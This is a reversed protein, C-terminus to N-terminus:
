QGVAVKRMQVVKGSRADASDTDTRTDTALSDLKGVAAVKHEPALHAYRMTMQLTRHGMLEAVTRIDVGAMVLRSAFTHRLCHWSFEPVDAAKLAIQFWMRYPQQDFIRETRDGNLAAMTRLASQAASNLPVYRISGNKTTRLRVQPTGSAQDIDRWRLGFQESARLGTNLAFLVAAWREPHKPEIVCRVRTEEDPLLYRVVGNDERLRKVLRVPNVTVKGDRTALTYVLSLLAKYRNVTAPAWRRQKRATALKGEITSPKLEDAPTSGFWSLLLRMREEDDSASRKYLRSHELADQALEAFSVARRNTSGEFKKDQWVAAKRISYLKEASSKTGAKERHIKGTRDAYRIWWEGSGPSKEYIGRTRPTM